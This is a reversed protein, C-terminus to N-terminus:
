IGARSLLKIVGEHKLASALDLPTEGFQNQVNVQAEAKVLLEAIELRDFSAAHHLPRRGHEGSANVDAGSRILLAAAEADGWVIVTHLPTDNDYNRSHVTLVQEDTFWASQILKLLSDLDHWRDRFKPRRSTSMAPM